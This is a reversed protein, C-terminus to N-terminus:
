ARSRGLIQQICPALGNCLQKFHIYHQDTLSRNSLGNDAYILGFPKQKVFISMLVFEDAGSAQKFNGPLLPWLQAYNSPHLRVSLPKQLLKNLLDGKRLTHRFNKLMPSDATGSSYFTRLERNKINLLSISAREFDAEKCLCDVSFKMLEHIDKFSDAQKLRLINAAFVSPAEPLLAQEITPTAPTPENDSAPEHHSAPSQSSTFASSAQLQEWKREYGFLQQAPLRASLSTQQHSFSVAQQHQLQIIDPLSKNAATALMKQLRLTQRSYWDWEAAEAFENALAILFPQRRCLAQLDPLEQLASTARALRAWERASGALEAQWSHQSLTPLYWQRSLSQAISNVSAEFVQQELQHAQAGRYKARLAQWRHMAEPAKHWLGWLPAQRFLTPWFVTEPSWYPNLAAWAQAQYAAHLSTMLQQQYASHQEKDVESDATNQILAELKPFGLLSIAHSLSQCENGSASLSRNAASFIPLCLAPDATLIRALNNANAANGALKQLAQQKIIPSVPLLPEALSQQWDFNPATAKSM